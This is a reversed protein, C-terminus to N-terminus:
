QGMVLGVSVISDMLAWTDTRSIRYLGRQQYAVAWYEGRGARSICDM